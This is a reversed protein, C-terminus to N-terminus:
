QPDAAKKKTAVKKTTVKKPAATKKKAIPKKPAAAKKKTAVKKTTAVKKKAAGKKLPPGKAVRQALFTLAEPLTVEEPSIDKSLTANVKGHRVYPGYRGNCVEVPKQDDPHAGLERLVTNSTRAEALLEVAREM